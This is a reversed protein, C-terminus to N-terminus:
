KKYITDAYFVPQDDDQNGSASYMTVAFAQYGNCYGKFIDDVVSLTLGSDCEIQKVPILPLTKHANDKGFDPDTRVLYKAHSKFPVAPINKFVMDAFNGALKIPSFYKIHPTAADTPQVTETEYIFSDNVNDFFNRYVKVSPMVSIERDKPKFVDFPGCIVHPTDSSAQNGPFQVFSPNSKLTWKSANKILKFSYITQDQAFSKQLLSTKKLQANIDSIFDKWIMIGNTVAGAANIKSSWYAFMGNLVEIDDLAALKALNSTILLEVYIMDDEGYNDAIELEYNWLGMNAMVWNRVEPANDAYKQQARHMKIVPKAPFERTIKHWNQVQYKEALPVPEVLEIWNSQEVDSNIGPKVNFEIHTVHPKVDFNIAKSTKDIQDFLIYWQNDKNIKSSFLKYATNQVVAPDNEGFSILLRHDAPLFEAGTLSTWIIGDYNYFNSLNNLVLDRLENKMEESPARSSLVWDVYNMLLKRVVLNKSTALSNFVSKFDTGGTGSLDKPFNNPQLLTEMQTLVRSLSKDLDVNSFIEEPAPISPSYSGSWLNKSFPKLGFYTKDIFAKDPSSSVDVAKINSLKESNVIYIVKAGSAIGKSTESSIGLCYKNTATKIAKNLDNPGSENPRSLDSNVMQVATSVALVSEYEWINAVQLKSVLVDGPLTEFLDDPANHIANVAQRKLVINIELRNKLSDKLDIGTSIPPLDTIAAPMILKDNVKVSLLHLKDSIEKIKAAWLGKQLTADRENITVFLKPDNLQANITYLQNLVGPIVNILLEIDGADAIPDGPQYKYKKAQVGGPLTTDLKAIGALDLISLIDCKAAINFFIRTLNFSDYWYSFKIIPWSDVPIIKDFYYHTYARNAVSQGAFTTRYGFVDRLSVTLDFTNGVCSYRKLNQDGSINTKDAIKLPSIHAYQIKGSASVPSTPMIPLVKDTTLVDTGTTSNKLGFELPLYNEYYNVPTNRSIGFGFTHAPMMSHYESVPINNMALSDLYLYHDKNMLGNCITEYYSKNDDNKIFKIGNFYYPFSDPNQLEFTLIVTQPTTAKGLVSNADVPQDLFLYYGGNNTSASEWLLRIFNSKDPDDSDAWYPLDNLDRKFLATTNIIPPSTRPSLNAKLLTSRNLALKILESIQNPDDKRPDTKHFVDINNFKDSGNESYLVTLLNLDEATVNVIEVVQTPLGSGDKILNIKLEINLCITMGKLVPIDTQGTNTTFDITDIRRGDAAITQDKASTYNLNFKYTDGKTGHSALKAPLAFYKLVPASADKLVVKSDQVGLTVPLTSFPRKFNLPDFSNKLTDLSFSSDFGSVFDVMAKKAADNIFVDKTIDIGKLSIKVKSLDPPPAQKSKIVDQQELISFISSTAPRTTEPLRLGSNYFYNLQGAIDALRDNPNWPGFEGTSLRGNGDLAISPNFHGAYKSKPNAENYFTELTLLCILKFFEPVIIATRLDRNAEKFNKDESDRNVFQTKYDDYFGEIISLMPDDFKPLPKIEKEKLPNGSSDTILEEIKIKFSAADGDLRKGDADVVKIKGTIPAPIVMLSDNYAANISFDPVGNKIEGDAFYFYSKLIKKVVTEDPSNIGCIFTPQYNPININIKTDVNNGASLQTCYGNLLVGRITDYKDYDVINSTKLFALLESFFPLIIKDKLLNMDSFKVTKDTVSGTKGFFPIVFSHILLLQESNSERVKSFGPIYIMPIDQIGKIDLSLVNEADTLGPQLAKPNSKLLSLKSNGGNGGIAYQFRVYAGFHLHIEICGIKISIEVVVEGEIYVIVPQLGKSRGPFGVSTDPAMDRSLYVLLLGFEARLSIYVSAKIIGFDVYGVLEAIAGVRGLVAFHDPMMQSLGSKKEFAFAGEMVSYVSISAGVYFPGESYYVGIGVRFAFGAQIINLRDLSYKDTIYGKFLTLSAIRSRMMYFGFWGVFPPATRLQIFGSRSWDNGNKPFGIDVKWDGNTYIELGINPLKIFAGGLEHNRLEDPLQIDVAYVGISDSVKKYLIDISFGTLFTGKFGIYLGYLSPDNFIFKLDVPWEDPLVSESAILWNRQPQYPLPITGSCLDADKLNSKFVDKIGKISDVTNKVSELAVPGVRQGLGLVLKGAADNNDYNILWALKSGPQAFLIGNFVSDDSPLQMGLITIRANVLRLFYANCATSGTPKFKGYNLEHIDLKLAGFLDIHVGNMSPGNLKFGLSFGGKPSWGVLFQGKLSSLGALSGLTGLDFDFIFSFLSISIGVKIDPMKFGPLQFYDFNIDADASGTGAGKRKLKFVEFHSFKIPFSSLFGGGDFDISPFVLLKSLDFKPIPLTLDLGFKFGINQFSLEKISILENNAWSGLDAKADIDFRFENEDKAYGFAIKSVAIDKLINGDDFTIKSKTEAEFNFEDDGASNKQYNGKLRILNPKSDYGTATTHSLPFDDFTINNEFIQPVQLFAYSVFNKIQSSEFRVLLKSLIFPPSQIDIKKDIEDAFHKSVVHYDDSRGGPKDIVDFDILAYYSSNSIDIAGNQVATRNVSFAVYQFKLKTKLILKPPDSPHPPKYSPDSTQSAKLGNFVAPVGDAIAVNLLIVGNWNPDNKITNNFYNYDLTNPFDTRAKIAAQLKQADKPKYTGYNSWKGADDLLEAFSHRSYKFILYQCNEYDVSAEIFSKIDVNFGRINFFISISESQKILMDPTLVFFVDDKTISVNFDSRLTVGSVRFQFTNDKNTPKKIFDLDKDARLFGQPTVFLGKDNLLSVPPPGAALNADLRLKSFVKEFEILSKDGNFGLTPITPLAIDSSRTSVSIPQYLTEVRSPGTLLVEAVGQPKNNFLPSKEADLNYICHESIKVLSAQGGETHNQMKLNAEDVVVQLSDVFEIGIKPSEHKLSETGSNGLLLHRAHTQNNLIISGIPRLLMKDLGPQGAEMGVRSFFLDITPTDPHLSYNNGTYDIFNSFAGPKTIEFKSHYTGDNKLINEFPFYTANLAAKDLNDRTFLDYTVFPENDDNDIKAQSLYGMKVPFSSKKSNDFTAQIQLAGKTPSGAVLDITVNSLSVAGKNIKLTLANQSDFILKDAAISISKGKFGDLRFIYETINGATLAPDLRPSSSVRQNTIGIFRKRIFYNDDNISQCSDLWLFYGTFASGSFMKDLKKTDIVSINTDEKILCLIFKKNKNLFEDNFTITDLPQGVQYLYLKVFDFNGTTPEFFNTNAVRNFIM